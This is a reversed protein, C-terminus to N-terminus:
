EFHTHREKKDSSLSVLEREEDESLEGDDSPKHLKVLKAANEHSSQAYGLLKELEESQRKFYEEPEEDAECVCVIAQELAKAEGVPMHKGRFEARYVARRAKLERFQKDAKICSRLALTWCHGLILSVVPYLLFLLGCLTGLVSGVLFSSMVFSRLFCLFFFLLSAASFVLLSMQMRDGKWWYEGYERLRTPESNSSREEQRRLWEDTLFHASVLMVIAIAAAMTVAGFISGLAMALTAWAASIEAGILMLSLPIQVFCILWIAGGCRKSFLVLLVVLGVAGLLIFFMTDLAIGLM